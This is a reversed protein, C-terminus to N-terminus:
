LGYELFVHSISQFFFNLVLDRCVQEGLFSTDPIELSINSVAKFLSQVLRRRDTNIYMTNTDGPDIAPAPTTPNTQFVDGYYCFGPVIVFFSCREDPDLFCTLGCASTNETTKYLFKNVHYGKFPLNIFHDVM